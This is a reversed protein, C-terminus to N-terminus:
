RVLRHPWNRPGGALQDHLDSVRRAIDDRVLRMRELGDIGRLSPEDTHWTEYTPGPLAPVHAEAGLTIVLDAATIMEDTLQRPAQDAIDVGLEALSAVSLANLRTGARTGASDVTIGSTGKQAILRRLLGAAMPSKGANKVCVFLVRTM